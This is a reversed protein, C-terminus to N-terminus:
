PKITRNVTLRRQQELFLERSEANEREEQERKAQVYYEGIRRQEAQQGAARRENDNAWDSTFRRDYAPMAAAALAAVISAEPAPWIQRGNDWDFLCVSTTASAISEALM